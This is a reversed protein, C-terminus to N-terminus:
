KQKNNIDNRRIIRNYGDMHVNNIDNKGAIDRYKAINTLAALRLNSNSTNTLFANVVRIYRFRSESVKIMRHGIPIEM